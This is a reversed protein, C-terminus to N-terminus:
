TTVFITIFNRQLMPLQFLVEGCRCLASLETLLTFCHLVSQKAASCDQINVKKVIVKQASAVDQELREIFNANPRIRHTKMTQMIYLKYLFNMDSQHLLIDCVEVNPVLGAVQRM